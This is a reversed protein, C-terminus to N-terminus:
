GSLCTPAQKSCSNQPATSVKNAFDKSSNIQQSFRKRAINRITVSGALGRKELLTSILDLLRLSPMMHAWESFALGPKNQPIGKSLNRYIVFSRHPDSMGEMPDLCSPCFIGNSRRNKRTELKYSFRIWAGRGEGRPLNITVM